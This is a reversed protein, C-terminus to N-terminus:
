FIFGHLKGNLPWRSKFKPLEANQGVSDVAYFFDLVHNEYFDNM